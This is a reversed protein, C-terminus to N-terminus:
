DADDWRLRRGTRRLWADFRGSLVLDGAALLTGARDSLLPLRERTWPPVGLDQLVHKLAHSHARGPLVIREGGCRPHVTFAPADAAEQTEFTEGPALAPELALTGGGWHLPARGDWARPATEPVPPQMGAYLLDRWRRIVAGHWAFEGRVDHGAALLPALQAVGRSPLPPLGTEDVWRRLVRARRAAPLAALPAVHLCNRDVGRLRALALADSEELLESAERQLAAAHAFAAGAHAWRAQLLPMVQHRLFNRDHAESDNSPDEIWRLANRQAHALLAQRPHGLLPRWMWGGAFRRWPRMAALGDAGSARLARLLFTEAQDDRHHGLVLVEDAGLADAFAAHRVARAAAELGSGGDRAVRVEVVELPVGLGRCTDLCHRAWSGADPHLGHHVHIARVGRARAAADTALLHLLATSDLGGSYGVLLPRELPPAALVLPAAAAM